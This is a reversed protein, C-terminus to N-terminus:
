PSGHYKAVLPPVIELEGIQATTESRDHREVYGIVVDVGQRRLRNGEILMQDTKGVGACAGLYIKLKGLQRRRIIALFDDPAPKISPNEAASM